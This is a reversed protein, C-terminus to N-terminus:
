APDRTFLLAAIGGFSGAIAVMLGEIPGFISGTLITGVFCPGFISGLGLRYTTYGQMVGIPTMAGLPVIWWFLPALVGVGAFRVSSRITRSIARREISFVAALVILTMLLPLIPNREYFDFGDIVGAFGAIGTIGIAAVAITDRAVLRHPLRIAQERPPAAFASTRPPESKIAPMARRQNRRKAQRKAVRSGYGISHGSSARPWRM